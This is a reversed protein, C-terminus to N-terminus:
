NVQVPLELLTGLYEDFNKPIFKNYGSDPYFTMEGFLIQGNEYYFDVRVFPFGLSLKKAYELMDRLSKPRKVFDCRPYTYNVDIVNWNLDFLSRKHNSFRDVDVQVLEPKGNFCFVKYDNPSNGIGKILKECIIRPKINKYAWEKGHYYHNSKMYIKLAKFAFAWDVENKDKCIINQGCGHTVKLVFEGPLESVKIEDVDEYIAYLPNLLHNGIRKSVFNRALLKDACETLVEDHFYIKLWQLKENFTRPNTLNLTEGLRIKHKIKVFQKDSVINNTLWYIKRKFYFEYLAFKPNKGSNM